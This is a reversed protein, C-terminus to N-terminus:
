LHLHANKNVVCKIKEIVQETAELTSNEDYNFCYYFKKDGIAEFYENARRLYNWNEDMLYIDYTQSNQERYWRLNFTKGADDRYIFDIDFGWFMDTDPIIVSNDKLTFHSDRLIDSLAKDRKDNSLMVGQKDGCFYLVDHPLRIYMERKNGNRKLVYALLSPNALKRIREEIEISNRPADGMLIHHVPSAYVYQYNRNVHTLINDKWTAALGNFIKHSWWFQDNWNDCYSYLCYLTDILYEEKIGNVDFIQKARKLKQDFLDWATPQGNVDNFLFSIAGKFFLMKEADEIKKKWEEDKLSKRAKLIEEVLQKKGFIEGPLKNEDISALYGVIDGTMNISADQSLSSLGKDFFRIASVAQERDIYSNELINWVFHMWSQLTEEKVVNCNNLYVFVAHMAVRQRDTITSISRDERYRPVFYYQRSETGTESIEKWYPTFLHNVKDSLNEEGYREKIQVYLAHLNNMCTYLTDICEKNLVNGYLDINKYGSTNKETLAKYFNHSTISEPKGDGEYHAMFWNLFYRNLFKLFIDDIKHEPSCNYWFIDTWNTDLLHSFSDGTKGDEVILLTEGDPKYNLLDVKFNEFDTLVKGRANMKIYLDDSLPLNKDEMDLTYFKIPSNVSKLLNLYGELEEQSLNVCIEEIGDVIENGDKDEKTTGGLMRLMSQITPDQEYSTYFWHQNRIFAVINEERNYEVGTKRNYEYKISCLKECFTRSSIRTSYSFHSLAKKDSELSGTCLSLYWHLLWLTTLRQQGDLPYLVNNEYSGYVFDLVLVKESELAQFLQKLFRERLYEQGSRGQAYDRQIIPIVINKDKILNWFSTLKSNNTM